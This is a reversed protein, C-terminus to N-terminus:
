ITEHSTKRKRMFGFLSTAFIGMLVVLSGLIPFPVTSSETGYVAFLFDPSAGGGVGATRQPTWSTAGLSFGDNPNIWCAENGSQVSRNSWFIQGYQAYAMNAHFSIWKTGEDLMVESPLPIIGSSFTSAPVTFGDFEQIVTGPKGSNDEHFRVTLNIPDPTAGITHPIVIETVLWMKGVPITIDDAADCDYMENESEFYQAPAGNNSANDLQEYLLDGITASASKTAIQSSGTTVLSAAKVPKNQAVLHSASFTLLFLFISGATLGIKLKTLKKTAFFCSSVVNIEKKM